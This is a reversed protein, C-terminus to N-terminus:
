QWLLLLFCEVTNKRVGAERSTLPKCQPQKLFWDKGEHSDHNHKSAHPEPRWEVRMDIAPASAVMYVGPSTCIEILWSYASFNPLRAEGQHSVCWWPFVEWVDM